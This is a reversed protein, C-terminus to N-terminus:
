GDLRATAVVGGQIRDIRAERGRGIAAAAGIKTAARVVHRHLLKDRRIKGIESLGTKFRRRLCASSPSKSSPIRLQGTFAIRVLGTPATKSDAQPKPATVPRLRM